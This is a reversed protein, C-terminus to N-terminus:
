KLMKIIREAGFFFFLDVPLCVVTIILATPILGIKGIITTQATGAIVDFLGVIAFFAGTFILATVVLRIVAQWAKLYSLKRMCFAIIAYPAFLIATFIFTIRLGAVAFAIAVTALTSIIGYVLGCRCFAIYLALSVLILSVIQVPTFASILIGIGGVAVCAGCYAIKKSAGNRM